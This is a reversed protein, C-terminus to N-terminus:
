DSDNTKLAVCENGCLRAFEVCSFPLPTVKSHTAFAASCFQMLFAVTRDNWNLGLTCFNFAWWTDYGPHHDAGALAWGRQISVFSGSDSGNSVGGNTNSSAFLRNQILDQIHLGDMHMDLKSINGDEYNVVFGQFTMMAFATHEGGEDQTDEAGGQTQSQRLMSLKLEHMKFNFAISRGSGRLPLQPKAAEIAQEEPTGWHSKVVKFFIYWFTCYQHGRLFFNVHPLTGSLANRPLDMPVRIEEPLKCRDWVIEFDFEQALTIPQMLWAAKRNAICHLWSQIDDVLRFRTNEISMVSRDYYVMNNEIEEPLKSGWTFRDLDFVIIADSADKANAVFLICPQVVSVQWKMRTDYRTRDMWVSLEGALEEQLVVRDEEAETVDGRSFRDEKPVFWFNYIGLVSEMSYVLNLGDVVISIEGGDKDDSPDFPATDWNWKVVKPCSEGESGDSDGAPALILQPACWASPSQVM